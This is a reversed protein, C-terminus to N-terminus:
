PSLAAGAWVMFDWSSNEVGTSNGTACLLAQCHQWTKWMVPIEGSSQKGFWAEGDPSNECGATHRPCTHQPLNLKPSCGRSQPQPQPCGAAPSPSCLQTPNTSGFCNRFGATPENYRKKGTPQPTTLSFSLNPNNQSRNLCESTCSFAPAAGLLPQFTSQFCPHIKGFGGM